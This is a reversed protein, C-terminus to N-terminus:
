IPSRDSPVSDISRISISTSRLSIHSHSGLRSCPHALFQDRPKTINTRATAGSGGTGENGVKRSPSVDRTAGRIPPIKKGRCAAPLHLLFISVWQYYTNYLYTTDHNGDYPTKRTCPFKFTSPMDFSSYMWCFSNLM